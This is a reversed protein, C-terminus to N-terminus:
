ASRALAITGSQTPTAVHKEAKASSAGASAVSSEGLNPTVTMVSIYRIQGRIATSDAATAASAVCSDMEKHLEAMPSPARRKAEASSTPREHSEAVSCIEREVMLFLSFHIEKAIETSGAGSSASM